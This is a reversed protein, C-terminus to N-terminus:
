RCKQGLPPVANWLAAFSPHAYERRLYLGADCYGMMFLRAQRQTVDVVVVFEKSPFINKLIICLEEFITSM